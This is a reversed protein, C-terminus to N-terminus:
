ATRRARRRRTRTVHVIVLGAVVIWAVLLVLALVSLPGAWASGSSPRQVTRTAVDTSSGDLPATWELRGDRDDGTTEEVAGPLDAGFVISMSENPTIGSLQESFPPGGAATALDSDAFSAFGDTLALQGSLTWTTEDEVTTRELHVDQFPPGLSALLNTAEDASTVRHRLTVTLGGDDTATPGDVRWGAARADGFRLDAALGPAQQVVDADATATVVLEGTGDAGIELLVDIDVRCGALAVACAVLALLRRLVASWSATGVVSRRGKSVVRRRVPPHRRSTVAPM